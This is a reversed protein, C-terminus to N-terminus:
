FEQVARMGLVPILSIYTKKIL